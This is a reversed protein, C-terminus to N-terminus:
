ITGLLEKKKKKYVGNITIGCYIDWDKFSHNYEKKDFYKCMDKHIFKALRQLTKQYKREYLLQLLPPIYDLSQM